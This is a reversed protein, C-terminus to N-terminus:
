KLSASFVLIKDVSIWYATHYQGCEFTLKSHILLWCSIEFCPNNPSLCEIDCFKFWSLPLDGYIDTFLM